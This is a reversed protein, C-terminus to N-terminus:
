ARIPPQKFPAPELATLREEALPEMSPGAHRPIDLSGPLLSACDVSCNAVKATLAEPTTQECCAPHHSKSLEMMATGTDAALSREVPASPGPARALANATHVGAFFMVLLTVLLARM